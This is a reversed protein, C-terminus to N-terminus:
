YKDSDIHLITIIGNYDDEDLTKSYKIGTCLQWSIYLSASITNQLQFWEQTLISMTAM